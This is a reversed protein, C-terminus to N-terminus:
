KKIETILEQERKLEKRSLPRSYLSPEEKSSTFKLKTGEKKSFEISGGVSVSNRNDRYNNSNFASKPASVKISFKQAHASFIMGLTFALLFIVKKM